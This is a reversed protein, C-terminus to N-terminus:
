GHTHHREKSHSGGGTAAVFAREDFVASRCKGFLTLYYDRAEGEAFEKKEAAVIDKMLDYAVRYPSNEELDLKHEHETDHEHEM